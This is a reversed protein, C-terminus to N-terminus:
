SSCNINEFRAWSAGADDAVQHTPLQNEQVKLVKQVLQHGLYLMEVKMQLLFMTNNFTSYVYVIGSTINKQNKEKKLLVLKKSEVKKSRKDWNKKM